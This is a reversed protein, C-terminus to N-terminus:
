VGDFAFVARPMHAASTVRHLAEDALTVVVRKSSDKTHSALPNLSVNKYSVSFSMLQNSMAKASEAYGSSMIKDIEIAFVFSALLVAFLTSPPNIKQLFEM